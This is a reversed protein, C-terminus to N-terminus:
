RRALYERARALEARRGDGPAAMQSLRAYHERARAPQEALEAARAAGFHGNFRNPFAELSKEYAVLAEAPRGLQVLLDGLQENAPLIQGPTVPHTGARTELEVAAGLLRLAEADQREARAIWASAALRQIEVQDIWWAFQPGVLADRLEGLRGSARRAVQVSGSRAAGVARAFEIHALAFPYAEIVDPHLAALSAADKWRHRELAYRAPMAGLAYAAAFNPQHFGRLKRVYELVEGAKRDEARQLYAFVLYDLAHLEEYWATGTAVRATYTRSADASALNAEISDAWMGLRTYIHSPMHLAHPVWPAVGGYHRAADLGRSALSPYDYAHIIYHPIGPHDPNTEFLPELIGTALLQNGYTRDTPPATALLSLSYFVAVELNGPHKRRLEDLAARFAEARAGPTRPGHCSVAAPDPKAPREEAGFYAGIADIWGRELESRGGIARAQEAAAAGAAMEAPTPAAWLPHYWTMAVGWWAMACEPDRRAIEEFRARAEEYFFSHLLAVATQFDPEVEPRCTVDFHVVGSARLDGATPGPGLAAPRAATAGGPPRTPPAADAPSHLARPGARRLDVQGADEAPTAAGLALSLLAVMLSM